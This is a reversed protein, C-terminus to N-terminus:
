SGTSNLGGIKSGIYFKVGGGRERGKYFISGGKEVELFYVGSKGKRCFNIGWKQM